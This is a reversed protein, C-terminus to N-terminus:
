GIAERIRPDKFAARRTNFFWGQIGSINQTPSPRRAQRPRRTVAPFDYGTAWVRAINFEEHVTIPAPRSLRSPSRRPRRFLRYRITDFNIRASM